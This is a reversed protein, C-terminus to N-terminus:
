PLRDPVDVSQVDVDVSQVDVATVDIAGDASSRRFQGGEVRLSEGCNACAIQTGNLGTLEYSCVPCSGLVVNKRLWWQLIFIGAIPVSILVVVLVVAGKVLWGLGLTALLWVWFGIWLLKRLGAGLISLGLFAGTSPTSGGRPPLSNM